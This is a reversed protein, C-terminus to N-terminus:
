LGVLTTLAGAAEIPRSDRAGPQQFLAPGFTDCRRVKHCKQVLTVLDKFHHRSLRPSSGAVEPTVPRFIHSLDIPSQVTRGSFAALFWMYHLGV